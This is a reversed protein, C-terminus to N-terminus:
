FDGKGTRAVRERAGNRRKEQVSREDNRGIKIWLFWSHLLEPCDGAGGRLLSLVRQFEPGSEKKGWIIGVLCCSHVPCQFFEWFFFSFFCSFLLFGPWEAAPLSFSFDSLEWINTMKIRHCKNTYKLGEVLRFHWPNPPKNHLLLFGSILTSSSLSKFNYIFM